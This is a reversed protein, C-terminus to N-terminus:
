QEPVFIFDGSIDGDLIPNYRPEQKVENVMKKEVKEYIDRGVTPGDLKNLVNLLNKAFVSHKGGGGDMVPENGGSTFAIRVEKDLNQKLVSIKSEKEFNIPKLGRYTIGSFCSDAIVIIHKAQIAKIQSKLENEPIWTSPKDKKADVPQWYATEADEDRKGYGAYYILLNDEKGIKRLEYITDLITTRSADELVNVKFNFKEKLLNAIARADNVANELDSLYDYKNNGIILAYYAGFNLDLQKDDLKALVRKKNASAKYLARKNEATTFNSNNESALNYWKLSEQLNAEIDIKGFEFIDGILNMAERDGGTNGGRAALKYLELAKNNDVKLGGFGYEYFRGLNRQATNNNNKKIAREYWDRAKNFNPAEFGTGNEYLEGIKNMAHHYMAFSDKMSSAKTYLDLARKYDVPVGVGEHFFSALRYLSESDPNSDVARKMLSFAKAGDYAFCNSNNRIYRSMTKMAKSYNESVLEDLKKIVKTCDQKKLIGEEYIKALELKANFEGKKEALTFWKIAQDIDKKTGKGELYMRGLSFEAYKYEEKASKKYFQFAKEFDKKM